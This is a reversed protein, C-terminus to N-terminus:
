TVDSPRFELSLLCGHAPIARPARRQDLDQANGPDEEDESEQEDGGQPARPGGCACAVQM